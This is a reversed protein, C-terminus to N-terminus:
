IQVLPLCDFSELVVHYLTAVSFTISGLVTISGVLCVETYLLLVKSINAGGRGMIAHNLWPKVSSKLMYLM